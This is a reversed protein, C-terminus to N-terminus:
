SCKKWKKWTGMWGGGDQRILANKSHNMDIYNSSMKGPILKGDMRRWRTKILANKNNNVGIYNSSLKKGPTLKGDMRRGHAEGDERSGGRERERERGKKRNRQDKRIFSHHLTYTTAHL